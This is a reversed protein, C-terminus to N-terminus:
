KRGVLDDINVNFLDALRCLYTLTPETGSNEWESVCQQSVGVKEAVESQKLKQAFRYSKLIEGFDSKDM